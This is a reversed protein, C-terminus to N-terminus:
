ILSLYSLLLLATERLFRIIWSPIFSEKNNSRPGEQKACALVSPTGTGLVRDM